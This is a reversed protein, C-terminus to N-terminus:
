LQGTKASFLLSRVKIIDVAWKDVLKQYRYVFGDEGRAGDGGAELDAVVAAIDVATPILEPPLAFKALLLLIDKQLLKQEEPSLRVVSAFLVHLVQLLTYM